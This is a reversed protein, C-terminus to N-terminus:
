EICYKAELSEIEVVSLGTSLLYDYAAKQVEAASPVEKDQWDFKGTQMRLEPEVLICLLRDITTRSFREYEESGPELHYYNCYSFLYDRKIEEISVGALAELVIALFGTRDKGENCNFLYPGDNKLMFRIGEALRAKNEPLFMDPMIGLLVAKGNAYLKGSYDPLKKIQQLKGNSDAMDIVTKIGAREALRDAYGCRGPNAKENLPNSARYLTKPKIKKGVVERFNAFEEDSRYDNRLNTRSLKLIPLYHRQALSFTVTEPLQETILCDTVSINLMFLSLSNSRGADDSVALMGVGASSYDPMFVVPLRGLASMDAMLLDGYEYGAQLFEEATCCLEVNGYKGAGSVHITVSKAKETYQGESQVIHDAPMCVATTSVLPMGIISGALLFPILARKM